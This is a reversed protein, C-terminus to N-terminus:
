LHGEEGVFAIFAMPMWTALFMSGGAIAMGANAEEKEVLRFQPLSPQPWYAPPQRCNYEPGAAYPAPPPAYQPPPVYQPPPAYQPQPAYQPPPAYQVATPQPMGPVSPPQLALPAANGTCTTQTTCTTTTTCSPTAGDAHALQPLALSFSALTLLAPARLVSRDLSM